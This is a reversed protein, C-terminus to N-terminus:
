RERGAAAIVEQVVAAVKEPTFGFHAALQEAPASAGYGDIAVVRGLDGVFRQWGFSVGAEVAVRARVAKPLVAERYAADEALFLECSPMSVVRTAVGQKDLLEQAALALAVESGTAILIAASTRSFAASDSLVYAGRRVGEVAGFRSRDLVPLNQRTLVLATPGHQRAIAVQWALRTENADAPRLTVLGPLARLAALHDTPQHTPGDEGLWVSDHTWVYTVALHNMAALRVAPRMYDAFCFFTGVLPRLGGHYSIGNAIAAMAHERVGFHLNRGSGSQGDFDGGNKISTLVSGGVDADGGMLEPLRAALANIVDGSAKRTSVKEGAKWTPLGSQWDAPLEGKHQAQWRAALAPHEASYAAFRTNWEHQKAAGAGLAARLHERAAEPVVFRAEPDFGLARKTLKVEEEGLPSGHAQCTGARHPSGFGITTRVMILHPRSEDARAAALACDIAALDTDGEDVVQVHWGYAEYRRRVDESFALTTPGDLSIANNDYLFVLKGLELHGALSSAEASLGEMLDGDGVLAYTHHDVLTHGPRNWEHALMREAIAMGVANACGQGLPGTTAEVGPTLHFEPHGPTRSGLQRFAQLQTMPLDYGSLHLLGYLLMSGHGASLVFRDRNAWTPDAPNHRLHRQWLVYAMPAAGLPLGPHGSNAKEIADIALTRLTNVCLLDLSTTTTM